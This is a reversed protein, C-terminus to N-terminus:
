WRDGRGKTSSESIHWRWTKDPVHAFTAGRDLMALWLGWDECPDGNEDPHEQFGGAERVLEARAVVTVPIFNTQRLWESHFPHGFLNVPDDGGVVEYGPYVVDARLAEAFDVCRRLHHPYWEDDADLFAVWDATVRELARNRTAAAGTRNTDLEVHVTIPGDYDQAAISAMTRRYQGSQCHPPITPVIVDM